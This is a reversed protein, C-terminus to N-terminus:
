FGMKINDECSYGPREPPGQGEPKRVLVRYINRKDIM